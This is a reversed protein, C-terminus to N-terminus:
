RPAARHASQGKPLRSYRTGERELRAKISQVTRGGASSSYKTATVATAAFWMAAGGIGAGLLFFFLEGPM